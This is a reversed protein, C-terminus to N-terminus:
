ERREKPTINLIDEIIEDKSRSDEVIIQPKYTEYFDEFQEFTEEDYDQYRVLWLQYYDERQEEERAKNILKVARIIPLELM